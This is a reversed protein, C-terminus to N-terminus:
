LTSATLNKSENPQTKPPYNPTLLRKLFKPQGKSKIIKHKELTDEMQLDNMLLPSNQYLKSHILSNGKKELEQIVM